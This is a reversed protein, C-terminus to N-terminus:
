PDKKKLLALVDLVMLDKDKPIDLQVDQMYPTTDQEPNYRYLSVLM